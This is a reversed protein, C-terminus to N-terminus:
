TRGLDGDESDCSGIHCTVYNREWLFGKLGLPLALAHRFIQLSCNETKPKPSLIETQLEPHGLVWWTSWASRLNVFIQHPKNKSDITISLKPGWSRLSGTELNNWITLYLPWSGNTPNPLLAITPTWTEGAQHQLLVVFIFLFYLLFSFCSYTLYAMLVHRRPSDLQLSSCGLYSMIFLLKTNDIPFCIRILYLTPM